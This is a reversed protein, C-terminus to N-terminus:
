DTAVLAVRRPKRRRRYAAVHKAYPFGAPTMVLISLLAQVRVFVGAPVALISPRSPQFSITTSFPPSLVMVTM